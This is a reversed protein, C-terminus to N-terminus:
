LRHYKLISKIELIFAPFLIIFKYFLYKWIIIYKDYKFVAFQHYSKLKQLRGNVDNVVKESNRISDLFLSIYADLTFIYMPDVLAMDSLVFYLIAANRAGSHYNQFFFIISVYFISCIQMANFKLIEKSLPFFFM